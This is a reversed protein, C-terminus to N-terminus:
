GLEKSLGGKGLFGQGQEQIGKKSVQFGEKVVHHSGTWESGQNSYVSRGGEKSGM